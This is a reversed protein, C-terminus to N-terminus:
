PRSFEYGRCDCERRMMAVEGGLKNAGWALQEVEGQLATESATLSLSNSNAAGWLSEAAIRAAELKRIQTGPNQFQERVLGVVAETYHSLCKTSKLEVVATGPESNCSALQFELEGLKRNYCLFTSALVEVRGKLIFMESM